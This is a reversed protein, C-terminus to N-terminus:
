KLILFIPSDIGNEKQSTSFVQKFIAVRETWFIRFLPKQRFSSVLSNSNEKLPFLYLQTAEM